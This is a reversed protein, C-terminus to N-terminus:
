FHGNRAVELDIGSNLSPITHPFIRVLVKPEGASSGQDRQSAKHENRSCNVVKCGLCMELVLPRTLPSAFRESLASPDQPLHTNSATDGYAVRVISM